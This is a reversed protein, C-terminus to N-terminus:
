IHDGTVTTDEDGVAVRVAHALLQLSFVITGILLVLQPIWLPTAVVSFSKAGRKFSQFAQDGLSYVLYCAIVFALITALVEFNRVARKSIAERLLTVRVHVGHRLASAAALFFTAGMMYASYDWAIPISVGLINRAFVESVMLLFLAALAVAALIGLLAGVADVIRLARNLGSSVKPSSSDAM